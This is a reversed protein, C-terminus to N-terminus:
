QSLGRSSTFGWVWPTAMGVTDDGLGLARFNTDAMASRTPMHDVFPPTIAAGPCVVDPVFPQWPLRQSVVGGATAIVDGTGSAWSVTEVVNCPVAESL